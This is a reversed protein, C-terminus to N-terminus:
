SRSTTSSSIRGVAAARLSFLLAVTAVLLVAGVVGAPVPGGAMILVLGGCTVAVLGYLLTVSGHSWGAQVLLQYVHTRHPRTLPEGRRVRAVMTLVEDVFMPMLPLYAQVLTLETNHMVLLGLLVATFGLGGSGADGMFISAPPWNFRLFGLAAGALVGGTLVVDLAPWGAVISYTAFILTQVGLIGDIGDIFNLVNIASVTWFLWWAASAWLAVEGAWVGLRIALWALLAGAIGHFVLRTGPSLSRVDDLGGIGTVVVLGAVGALAAGTGWTSMLAWGIALGVPIMIGIGGGRPTALTHSSRDSPLDVIGSRRAYGRVGWVLAASAVASALFATALLTELGPV